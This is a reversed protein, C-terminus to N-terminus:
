DDEEGGRDLIYHEVRFAPGTHPQAQRATIAAEALEKTSYIGVTYQEEYDYELALWLHVDPKRPPM